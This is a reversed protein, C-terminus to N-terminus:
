LTEGKCSPLESNFRDLFLPNVKLFKKSFHVSLDKTENSIKTFGESSIGRKEMFHEFILEYELAVDIDGALLMNLLAGADRPKKVVNYGNRKLSLWKTTAFKASYRARLADTENNPDVDTGRRMYWVLTDSVVPASPVSYRARASNSSGVFFGDYDNMETGLQAQSWGTVVIEYPMGIKDLVCMIRNIAIGGLTEGELIQYPPLQQTALRLVGYAQSHATGVSLCLAIIGLLVKFLRM